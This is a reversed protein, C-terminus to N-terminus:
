SKRDNLVQNLKKAIERISTKMDNFKSDLWLNNCFQEFDQALM